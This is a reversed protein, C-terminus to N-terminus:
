LFNRILPAYQNHYYSNNLMELFKPLDRHKKYYDEILTGVFEPPLIPEFEEYEFALEKEAPSLERDYKRYISLIKYFPVSKDKIQVTDFLKNYRDFYATVKRYGSNKRLAKYHSFKMTDPYTQNFREKFADEFKLWNTQDIKDWDGKNIFHLENFKILKLKMMKHFGEPVEFSNMIVMIGEDPQDAMPVERVSKSYSPQLNTVDKTHYRRDGDWTFMRVKQRITKTVPNVPLDKKVASLYVVTSLPDGMRKLLDDYVGTTEREVNPDYTRVVFAKYERKGPTNKLEHLYQIIHQNAKSLPSKPLDDVIIASTNEPSLHWGDGRMWTINNCSDYRLNFEAYGEDDSFKIADKWPFLKEGNWEVDSKIDSFNCIEHLKKAAEWKSPENSVKKNIEEVMERKVQAIADKILAQSNKDLNINERSLAVEMSGIPFFLDIGQRIIGWDGQMTDYLMDKPVVYRIGGMIVGLDQNRGHIAWNNRRLQYEVPKVKGNFVKPQPEFYELAKQAANRFVDIDDEQVPFSVTVGNEEETDRQGQLSIAPVGDTDKFMTYVSLKGKHVVRLTFQNVYAFPSKSGIGFGGIQDNATDKTSGDTYAMFPGMVFEHAMGTGFDKVSFAPEIETPLHVEVPRIQGAATHADIANAVLERLIAVPKNTYTQSAFFDFIKPTAKITARAVELAGTQEIYHHQTAIKM